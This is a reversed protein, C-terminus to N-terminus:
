SGWESRKYVFIFFPVGVIATLIGIPIEVVTLVRAIFDVCTMFIAGALCVAPLLHKHDAGVIMRCLNPIILGVWGIVGSVTVGAATVITAAMIIILRTRSPNIGLAYADENGMSLINIRWRLLLLVTIGGGMLPVVLCVEAFTTNAFSGMLWYTISPLQSETDAVLKILSILANFLSFVLMGSLVLSLPSSTRKIKSVTCAIFVSFLGFSFAMVTTLGAAGSTLLIGLVAGFGAGASVGLIDPSVLPNQFIGQFSAGSISLGAGVIVCLLVRPLRINWVVTADICDLNTRLLESKLVYLVRGPPVYYRGMFLSFFILFFLIIGLIAYASYIRKEERRAAPHERVAM